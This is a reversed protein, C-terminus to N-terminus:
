AGNPGGKETERSVPDIHVVFGSTDAKAKPGKARLGVIVPRPDLFRCDHLDGDIVPYGRYSDPLDPHFVISVNRGTELTPIVLTGNSESRSFTLHYNGQPVNRDRRKTYDYFQIEPFQEVVDCTEWSIDSTVNLRCAAKLERRRAERKLWALDGKLLALFVDPEDVWLHTKAIRAIRTQMMRGRGSWYLCAAACGKSHAPCVNSGSENAPALSLGATLYGQAINKALKPNAFPDTLLRYNSMLRRVM